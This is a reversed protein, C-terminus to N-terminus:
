LIKWDLSLMPCLIKVRKNWFFRHFLLRFCCSAQELGGGWAATAYAITEKWKRHSLCFLVYSASLFFAFIVFYYQTMFGATITLGIGVFLGLKKGINEIKNGMAYFVLFVLLQVWFTLMTYMRIYMVTSLAGGSFGYIFPSLLRAPNEKGLLQGSIEYLLWIIGAFYLFNVALGFWKSFSEPFLSCVTHLIMYYFPPHVDRAQNEYVSHFAFKEGENAVLYDMYFEPEHWENMYGAKEWLFPAEYSNALGYTWLEDIYYGEKKSGWYLVNLLQVVLILVMILRIKKEKM